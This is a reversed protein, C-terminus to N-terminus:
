KQEVQDPNKMWVGHEDCPCLTIGPCKVKELYELAPFSYNLERWNMKLERLYKLRLAQVKLWKSRDLTALNGGRIYLKYLNQLSDPTLWTATSKPFCQLDLKELQNPLNGTVTKPNHQKTAQKPDSKFMQWCSANGGNQAEGQQDALTAGWAITLNRLVGGGGINQLATLDDDTPFDKSNANITLKRLNKLNKLDELTASGKRRPNSIVFGKLVRLQVLASLEKPLRALLYCDSLDLYRLKTLKGIEKSLEELNHCEKLDLIVLSSHNGIFGPLEKIRSVGQLSLFRLGKSNKLGELFEISEVEIHPKVSGPWSGLCVVQADKMKSLWDMASPEKIQEANKVKKMLWALELDPFPENVNFLTVLKELDTGGANSTTTASNSTSAPQSEKQISPIKKLLQEQEQDLEEAKLLCMRNGRPFSVNVELEAQDGKSVPRSTWYRQPLVNGKDDYDFFKEEKSISIVASRVLPHMKFSKFQMKRKRMAPEILGKEQFEGLIKDVIEEPPVPEPDLIGEGVGWFVFIRRKVVANEPFVTFCSLIFKKERELGDFIDRIEKHFSSSSFSTSQYVNVSEHVASSGSSATGPQLHASLSLKKSMTEPSSLHKTIKMIDKNIEAIRRVSAKTSPSAESKEPSEKEVIRRLNALHDVLETYAKTKPFNALENVNDEIQKIQNKLKKLRHQMRVRSNDNKSRISGEQDPDAENTCWQKRLFDPCTFCRGDENTTTILTSKKSDDGSNKDNVENNHNTTNTNTGTEPTHQVPPNAQSHTSIEGPTKQKNDSSSM